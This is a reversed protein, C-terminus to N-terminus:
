CDIGKRAAPFHAKLLDLTKWVKEVHGDVRADHSAWICVDRTIRDEGLILKGTALYGEILELTTFNNVMM